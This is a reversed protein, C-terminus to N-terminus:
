LDNNDDCDIFIIEWTSGAAKTTRHFEDCRCCIAIAIFFCFSEMVLDHLGLDGTIGRSNRSTVQSTQVVDRGVPSEEM